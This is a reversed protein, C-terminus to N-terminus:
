SYSSIAGGGLFMAARGHGRCDWHTNHSEDVYWKVVSLSEVSLRLKLRRTGKLYLMVRRLKGLDDKDSKKVRSTLFSVTTQIDRRARMLMFLLKAVINHFKGAQEEPLYEAESEDRVTFLHDAAPTAAKGNLVEPFEEIREDLFRFMSVDVKGDGTFEYDVGLYDHKEWSEEM